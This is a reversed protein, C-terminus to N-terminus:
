QIANSQPDTNFLFRNRASNHNLHIQAEYVVILTRQFLPIPFRINEFVTRMTKLHSIQALSYEEEEKEHLSVWLVQTM